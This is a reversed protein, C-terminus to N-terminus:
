RGALELKYLSGIEADTLAKSYVRIEDVGGTMLTQWTQPASGTFGATANAFTGVVVQTPPLIVLNGMPVDGAGVNMKRNRFNKNSVIVNNAFLDINSSGGDYRLVYHFWKDPGNKVAFFDTGLVGYANVNDGYRFDGNVYSAINSHLQLTDSTAKHNGTEVYVNLLGRNWDTQSTANGTIGFINTQQTGNNAIKVWMSVTVSGLASASNLASITPYVLYGQSLNLGQGKQATVFSNGVTKSPATKSKDEALTGDFTWHAVLNSSAVENSNNYGDIAPLADDKKSCGAFILLALVSASALSYNIMKKM